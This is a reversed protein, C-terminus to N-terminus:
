RPPVADWVFVRYGEQGLPPGGPQPDVDSGFSVHRGDASIAATQSGNGTDPYLRRQGRTIWTVVGTRRDRVYTDVLTDEDSRFVPTATTFAVFRGDASVDANAYAGITTNPRGRYDASVIELRGTRLDRLWVNPVPDVGVGLSGSHEFVVFRGNDSVSPEASTAIFSRPDVPVDRSLVVTTGRRRDRAYALSSTFVPLPPGPVLAQDSAFAVVEGHASVSAESSFSQSQEGEPTLSVRETRATALDRVFVDSTDNTDGPILNTSASDFAVYRGDASIDPRLAGRDALGGGAAVSVLTTRGRRLDRVFVNWQHSENGPLFSAAASEFVVYRGDASINGPRSEADSPVGGTGQSVLVTRRAVTDRVFVDTQDNTDGAVLDTAASAFVVYRGHASVGSGPTSYSDAPGGDRAASVLSITGRWASPAAQAGPPASGLVVATVAVLVTTGTWGKHM